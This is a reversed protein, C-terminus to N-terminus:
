TVKMSLSQADEYGGWYQDNSAYPCMGESDFSRNWTGSKINKCVKKSISEADEYGVWDRGNSAYPCMGESDFSRNWSGFKINKCVEFYAHINDSMLFAGREPKNIFDIPAHLGAEKPNALKYVRGYFAVGLVLKRKSAGRDLLAQLGTEVNLDATDNGDISRNIEPIDYGNDLIQQNIPVAATLLLKHVRFAAYLEELLRVFNVKDEISGGRDVSGPFLWFIDLGDFNHDVLLRVTDNIFAKRRDAMSAMASIVQTQNNWGGISIFTKLRTFNTKLKAFDAFKITNDEHITYTTHNLTIYALNVHSCLHGPVDDIDYNMPFPRLAQGKEYYCVVPLMRGHSFNEIFVAAQFM